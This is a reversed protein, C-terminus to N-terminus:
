DKVLRYTKTTGKAAIRLLYVGSALDATELVTESGEIEGSRVVVGQANLLTYTGSILTEHQIALREGFPNPAIVVSAFVADSVANPDPAPPNPSDKKVFVAKVEVDATVTFKGDSKIDKDGAMLSQLEWGDAPTAVAILETNAPVANLKDAEIGTITLTGEGEKATTVAFTTPQPAPPNPDTKKVFVAKVEVDATVTFKGDSKIDKDGAMLSQLDWGDAPTAVAILETNAPVANLKDAEIGTITLTGEGEKATTVAFTTPPIIEFEATYTKSETVNADTRPNDIKGDDWKVFRYGDNAKATVPTGSGGAEVTQTADGEITGHDGAVYTLTYRTPPIQEFEATYTKSETVNADTRPNDTKGDDWKVFRYGDNAKATVPTGSGGAEVTQTADGEITGHDGAVYTLTFVQVFEATYTKSETVNADTRPNDTKGDDWKVFRYGDNAKATVPTGSGGAEVTQTADGEITGHDGAIYTLTYTPLVAEFEATYTGDATVIDTRPNQTSNDSWRIFKYGQEGVANVYSTKAGAFLKQYASGVIKGHAGALYTITFTQKEIEKFFAKVTLETDDEREIDLNGDSWKEFLYGDNAIAKVKAAKIGPTTKLELVSVKENKDSEQIMGHADAIYRLTVLTPNPDYRVQVNDIALWTNSLYDNSFNWRFRVFKHAGIKNKALTFTEVWGFTSEGIDKGEKWEGDEFCYELKAIRGAMTYYRNYSLIVNANPARDELSLWPSAAYCNVYIPYGEDTPNILLLHGESGSVNPVADKNVLQWGKGRSPKAFEWASLHSAGLEFTESWSLLYPKVFLATVQIDNQVNLDTRLAEKKGDSWGIFLYGEKAKVSVSTGNGGAAVEQSLEGVLLEGGMWIIYHLTYRIEEFEATVDIKQQVNKDTRLAEQANDSWRKFRYRPDKPIAIVEEADQGQAVWQHTAGQLIGHEDAKYTLEFQLKKLLLTIELPQNDVHVKQQVTQYEDLTAVVEYVAPPLYLEIRGDAATVSNIKGCQVSVNSLPQNADDVVVLTLKQATQPPTVFLKGKLRTVLYNGFPYPATYDKPVIRYEGPALPPMTANWIAGDQTRIEYPADFQYAIEDYQLGDYHFSFRPLKDGQAISLDTVQITLPARLIEVERVKQVASAFQSNGEQTAFIQTTGIGAAVLEGKLDITAISPDQTFYTIPLNSTAKANLIQPTKQYTYELKETDWVIEQQMALRLTYRKIDRGNQAVVRLHLPSRFDIVFPSGVQLEQAGNYLRAKQSIENVVCVIKSVDLISQESENEVNLVIEQSPNELVIEDKLGSNGTKPITLKLLDCAPNLDSVVRVSFAQTITAGFLESLQAIFHLKHEPAASFDFVQDLSVANGACSLQTQAWSVDFNLHVNAFNNFAPPMTVTIENPSSYYAPIAQGQATVGGILTEIPQWLDGRSSNIIAYRENDTATVISEGETFLYEGICGKPLQQTTTNRVSRTMFEKIQRQSRVTNWVRFMAQQGQLGVNLWMSRFAFRGDYVKKMRIKEGDVFVEPFAKPKKGMQYMSAAIHQWKGPVIVPSESVYAGIAGCLYVLTNDPYDKHGSLTQLGVESAYVLDCTQAKDLKWWGEITAQKSVTAGVNPLRLDETKDGVYQLAFIKSTQPPISYFNYSLTNDKPNPDNEQTTVTLTYKGAKSLDATQQFSVIAEGGHAPIVCAFTESIPSGSNLSYNLKLEHLEALGNNRIRVKIPTTASLGRATSLDEIALLAIETDYPSKGDKVEATLDVVHGWAITQGEKFQQYGEEASLMLRMRHTGLKLESFASFDLTLWYNDTGAVLETQLLEPAIDQLLNDDNFDVWLRIQAPLLSNLPQASLQVHLANKSEKYLIIKHEPMYVVGKAPEVAIQESGLNKIGAIYLTKEKNITGEHWLPDKLIHLQASNDAVDGDKALTARIRIDAPAVVEVEEPIEYLTTGGAKLEPILYRKRESRYNVELPIDYLPSPVFNQVRAVLKQHAADKGDQQELALLSWQNPLELEQVHAIWGSSPQENHSKFYFTLAGSAAEAIIITGSKSKGTLAISADKAVVKLDAPVEGKYIYLTDGESFDYETFTVQITNKRNQPRIQLVAQDDKMYNELAGRSDVFLKPANLTIHEYPVQPFLGGMARVYTCEPMAVVDGLNYVEFLDTNNDPEQDDEVETRVAIQYKHPQTSTFDYPHAILRDEFPQLTEVIESYVVKSDVAVSIPINRLVKSSNNRIKFNVTETSMNARAKIPPYNSWIVGVDTKLKKELLQYYVIVINNGQDQLAAELRLTIKRGVYKTFDWALRHEDEDGVIQQKNLLTAEENGDVLLRFIAGKPKNPIMTMYEYIVFHLETGADIHTLDLGCIDIAAVNDRSEFPKKWNTAARIAQWELMQSGLPLKLAPVADRISLRLNKGTTVSSQQPTWGVFTEKYPLDTNSLTVLQPAHAYVATSRRGVIGDNNVAQVAYFNHKTGIYKKDLRFETVTGDVEDIPEYCEKKWDGRFIRYKAASPAAEWKLKWGSTNCTNEELRLEEVQQMITFYGPMIVVRNQADTVRLLAKSSPSLDSPLLIESCSTYTGLLLFDQGGNTSLEVHLNGSLGETRFYIAEGPSYVDGALPSAIAPTAEDIYWVVAYDQKKGQQVIGTINITYEGAEPANVVVQEINDVTNKKTAVAPANPKQPDLTYPLYSQTGFNVTLDLDNVLPTEGTKYEKDAVPDNWCLMVRLEKANSPVRVNITQSDNGQPLTALHYWEREMASLAASANLIGFGYKYDPGLNGADRATNAILAKLFYNYPNTGGHLQQWRQTLLALHGTVTPCAMSTGNMPAYREGDITSYVEKGLASVIPYIRGDRLPGFSSFDTIAGWKDVAAVSIINKSYRTAHGFPRNCAGQDNGASFVHTLTPEWCSLIDINPFGMATYNYFNELGCLQMMQMGYSNSTLSIHEADYLDLMEQEPIKGNSEENFNSAWLEAEPAIGRAREDLLGSGLITGATHMGHAGTSAISIEYELRHIREGYDVHEGVNSDWLGIRVGKGTLGRGNSLTPIQLRAGGSLRAGLRNHLQQPPPCWRIFAVANNEALNLLQEESAVVHLIRLKESVATYCIQRAQLINKLAQWSTNPFWSLTMKLNAGDRVWQPINHSLVGEVVKWESRIPVVARLGTGVFDSPSSGPAVSAYYANSGLYDGLEVGKQRLANHNRAASEFQVLVNLRESTPIGLELSSTRAGRVNPRVNTELYVERNGFRIPEQAYLLLSTYLTLLLLLGRRM